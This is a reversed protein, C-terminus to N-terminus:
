VDQGEEGWFEGDVDEGEERVGARAGAGSLPPAGRVVIEAGDERARTHGPPPADQRPVM